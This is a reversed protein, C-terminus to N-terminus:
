KSVELISWLPEGLQYATECKLLLDTELQVFEELVYQVLEILILFKTYQIYESYPSSYVHEKLLGFIRGKASSLM